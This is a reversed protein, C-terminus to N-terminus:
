QSDDEVSNRLYVIINAKVLRRTALDGASEIASEVAPQENEDTDRDEGSEADEGSAVKFHASRRERAKIDKLQQEVGKLLKNAEASTYKM